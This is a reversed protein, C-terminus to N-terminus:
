TMARPAAPLILSHLVAGTGIDLRVIRGATPTLQQWMYADNRRGTVLLSMPQSFAAVVGSRGTTRDLRWLIHAPGDHSLVLPTPSSSEYQVDIVTHNGPLSHTQRPPATLTDFDYTGVISVEGLQSSASLGELAVVWGYGDLISMVDPNPDLRRWMSRAVPNPICTDSGNFSSAFLSYDSKQTVFQAQTTNDGGDFGAPDRYWVEPSATCSDYVRALTVCHGGTRRWQSPNAGCTDFTYRGHAISVLCNAAELFALAAPTPVWQGNAGAVSVAFADPYADDLWEQMGNRYNTWTTGDSPDTNMLFPSGMIALSNSVLDYNAQSQWSRPGDLLAPFGHNAAYAILNMGCTPVCYANGGNPLTDRRQDFDPLGLRYVDCQAHVGASTLAVALGSAAILCRSAHMIRQM